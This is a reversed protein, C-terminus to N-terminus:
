MISHISIFDIVKGLGHNNVLTVKFETFDFIDFVEQEPVDDFRLDTEAARITKDRFSIDAVEYLKDMVKLYKIKTSNIIIM